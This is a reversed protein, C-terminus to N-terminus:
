KITLIKIIDAKSIDDTGHDSIKFIKDKNIKLEKIDDALGKIGYKIKLSKQGNIVSGFGEKQRKTFATTVSLKNEIIIADTIIDDANKRILVVGAACLRM